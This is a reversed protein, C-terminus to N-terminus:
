YQRFLTEGRKTNCLVLVSVFSHEPSCCLLGLPFLFFLSSSLFALLALEVFRPHSAVAAGEPSSGGCVLAGILRTGLLVELFPHSALSAAARVHGLTEGPVRFSTPSPYM